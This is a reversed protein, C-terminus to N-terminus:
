SLNDFYILDFRHEDAIEGMMYDSMVLLKAGEEMAKICSIYGRPVHLVDLTKNSIIFDKCVLNKSPQEWNDIKMLQVCFSGHVASFWRQEIKHGQWGRRIELSSNEIMYMRKVASSDYNNNYLLSGRGDCYVNGKILTPEM